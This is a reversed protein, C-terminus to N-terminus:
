RCEQLGNFAIKGLGSRAFSALVMGSCAVGTYGANKADRM